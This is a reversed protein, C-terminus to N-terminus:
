TMIIVGDGMQGARSLKGLQPLPKCCGCGDCWRMTRQVVALEGGRQSGPVDSWHMTPLCFYCCDWRCRRWRRCCSAPELADNGGRARKPVVGASHTAPLTVPSSRENRDSPILPLLRWGARKLRVERLCRIRSPLLKQPEWRGADPKSFSVCRSSRLKPPQLRM